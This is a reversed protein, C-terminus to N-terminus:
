ETLTEKQAGTGAVRQCNGKTPAAANASLFIHLPFTKAPKLIFHVCQVGSSHPRKPKDYAISM